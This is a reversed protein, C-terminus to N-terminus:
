RGMARQVRRALKWGLIRRLAQFRPPGDPLLRSGGLEGVRKCIKVRLDSHHPWHEYEFSQLINACALRTRPSDEVDLLHQTGLMVSLFQSEIAKRSKQRSLSGQLGSRYYLGAGPAFRIGESRSLLRAFFEFDDILTLREDWGGHAMILARPVLLIGSSMMPLASIWDGVLWDVGSADRYSPRDPFKAEDITTYFRDWAGMTVVGGEARAALATLHTPVIIDDADLYLVRDGVSAAFAVNRAAAAGRNAQTIVKVGYQQYRRLVDVSGDTSGDDVVVVEVRPYDQELVSDLLASIYPAANHCPILVSITENLM